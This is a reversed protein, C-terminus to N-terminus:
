HQLEAEIWLRMARLEGASLGFLEAVIRDARERAIVDGSHLRAQLVSLQKVSSQWVRAPPFPISAITAGQYRRHRDKAVDAAALACAAVPTSGLFMELAQADRETEVSVYYLTQNPVVRLKGGYGDASGPLACPEFRLALDKWAVAHRIDGVNSELRFLRQQTTGLHTVLRELIKNELKALGSPWLMLAGEAWRGNRLDRGRLVRVVCGAPLLIGGISWCGDDCAVLDERIFLENDGTKVGMRPQLSVGLAPFQREMKRIAGLVRVPALLWPAGAVQGALLELALQGDGTEVPRGDPPVNSARLHLPFTDADFASDSGRWVSRIQLSDLMQRRAESAYGASLLKAPVLMAMVGGRACLQVSRQLFAIYLDAQRVSRSAGAFWSYRSSLLHRMRPEIRSHRVWPPNGVVLDFGGRAAVEAFTLRWDFFPIEGRTVRRRMRILERRLTQDAPEAALMNQQRPAADLAGIAENVLQLARARDRRALLRRYRVREMGSSRRYETLEPSTVAAGEPTVDVHLEARLDLPSVLTDGQAINRDLNPLPQVDRWDASESAVVALWLRLECLRVAERKRDIGYLQNEVIFRRSVPPSQLGRTLAEMQHLASLLFAGTGCAPDIVTVERAKAAIDSSRSRALVNAGGGMLSLLSEYERTDVSLREALAGAVIRDVLVPPTYFSGSANREDKEMLSEFVRGLMEPDISTVDETEESVSFDFVDFLGDFAMRLSADSIDLRDHRREFDSQEFLGGNLYPISGLSLARGRRRSVPQNLCGFFLPKLFSQWIGSTARDVHTRLFRDDGDLWGKREVFRLFLLRCMVLLAEDECEGSPARTSERISLAVRHVAARFREFFRRGISDSELARGFLEAPDRQEASSRRLLTLRRELEEAKRTTDLRLSATRRGFRGLLLRTQEPTVQILAHSRVTNWSTLARLTPEGDLAERAELVHM